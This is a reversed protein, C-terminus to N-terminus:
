KEEELLNDIREDREFSKDIKMYWNNDDNEIIWGKSRYLNLLFILILSSNTKEIPLNIESKFNIVNVHLDIEFNDDIQGNLLGESYTKEIERDIWNEALNSLEQEYKTLHNNPNEYKDILSTVSIAM